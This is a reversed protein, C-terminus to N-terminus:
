DYRFAVKIAGTTKDQATAVADKWRTLPFRHTVLGETTLKGEGMLDIVVGFTSKREGRFLEPGHAYLGVLDVEQYWVPTLDVHLPSFKIGVLVVAGRGRALRLADSVTQASGVCDYVVSFGGLLMRNGFLGEYLRAGTIRAAAEFM